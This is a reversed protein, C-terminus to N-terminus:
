ATLRRRRRLLGLAGVALLAVAGPEPATVTASTLSTGPDGGPGIEFRGLEDKFALLDAFPSIRSSAFHTLPIQTAEPTGPKTKFLFAHTDVGQPVEGVTQRLEFTEDSVGM